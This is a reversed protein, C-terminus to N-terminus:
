RLPLGGPWQIPNDVGAAVCFLCVLYGDERLLHWHHACHYPCWLWKVLHLIPM